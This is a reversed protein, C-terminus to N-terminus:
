TANEKPRLDTHSTPRPALQVVLTAVVILGAGFWALPTLREGLLLAGAVAAFLSETSIIVAAESAATYRLAVTLLTFTMASSLIGVYAIELAAARLAQLTPAELLLTGITALTAVVAFQIMTFMAPRGFGAGKESLIVHVAWFLACAAILRDGSSLADLSGGGLAWTGIFSLAVAPILAKGPTRRLWIWALIPTIIVYLATLFGGNTATATKLGLQQLTAGLFFASGAWLGAGLLGPPCFPAADSTTARFGARRAEYYAFPLLTLTALIARSAIFTWPGLVDMATKQFVFALGWIAATFLLLLNANLRSM